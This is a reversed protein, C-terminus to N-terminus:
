SIYGSFETLLRPFLIVLLGFATFTMGVATPFWKQSPILKELLIIAGIGAMWGLHMVGMVFLIVMLGSCCGFCYLGHDIGMRFAGARGDRWHHSLFDFPNQCHRLCSRKLPSLQYLGALALAGGAIRLIVSPAVLDRVAGILVYAAFFLSGTATWTLFYGASFLFLGGRAAPRKRAITRYLLLTPYTSPLMMAVMMILWMGMFISFSTPDAWGTMGVSMPVGLRMLVGMNRVQFYTLYWAAITLLVVTSFLSVRIQRYIDAM